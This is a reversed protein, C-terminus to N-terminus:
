AEVQVSGRPASALDRARFAGFMAVSYVAALVLFSFPINVKEALWGLSFSMALQLLTSIVAFASQTRGMLHRPVATMIASQTLIGGLARCSGFLAQLVAAILLLHTYPFFVHGITLTLMAGILVIAPRFRKVLLGTALGGSIAGIAWSSEIVGYGRAGANLIDKVVAVVVVNSSVVGAMMCAYTLGLALVDGRSSLYRMGEKLEALFNTELSPEVIPALATEEAVALPGEFGETIRADWHGRPPFHGRRLQYLCFASVAYTSADIALIGAIGAHDYMFGVFGGAIALGGQVAILIGSNGAVLQRGPIVEQVLANITSWYVAACIGGLVVMLYIAFPGGHHLYFLASVAAVVSGRTLDLTIGLYRRDTRDILVGGLLPVFLGPLTMLIMLLSVQLTSNTRGLIYWTVGAFNMGTGFLSVFLGAFFFRFSRMAFLQKWNVQHHNSSDM